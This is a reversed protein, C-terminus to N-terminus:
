AGPAQKLKHPAKSLKYVHNPDKPCEFSSSQEVYVEKTLIGNLIASKLAFLLM